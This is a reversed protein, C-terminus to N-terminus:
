VTVARELDDLRELWPAAGLRKFIERAEALLPAPDDVALEAQEVLAIALPYPTQM